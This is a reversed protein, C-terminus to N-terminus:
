LGCFNLKLYKVRHLYEAFPLESVNIDWLVLRNDHDRSLWMMGSPKRVPRPEELVTAFDIFKVPTLTLIIQRFQNLFDFLGTLYKENIFNQRILFYEYRQMM